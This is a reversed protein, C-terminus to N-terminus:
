QNATLFHIFNYNNSCISQANYYKKEFQIVETRCARYNFEIRQSQLGTKRSSDYSLHSGANM